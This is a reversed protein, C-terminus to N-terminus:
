FRLREWITLIEKVVGATTTAREVEHYPADTFTVVEGTLTIKDLLKKEKAKSLFKDMDLTEHNVADSSAGYESQDRLSCHDGFYCTRCIEDKQGITIAVPHDDPLNNFQELVRQMARMHGRPNNGIRDYAYDKQAQDTGKLWLELIEAEGIALTQPSIGQVVLLYSDLHHARIEFPKISRAEIPQQNREQERM